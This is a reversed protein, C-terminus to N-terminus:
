GGGGSMGDLQDTRMAEGPHRSRQEGSISSHEFRSQNHVRERTARRQAIHSREGTAGGLRTAIGGQGNMRHDRRLPNDTESRCESPSVAGSIHVDQTPSIPREGGPSDHTPPRLVPAPTSPCAPHCGSEFWFVPRPTDRELDRGSLGSRLPECGREPIARSGQSLYPPRLSWTPKALAEDTAVHTATTVSRRSTSALTLGLRHPFIGYGRPGYESALVMQHGRSARRRTHHGARKHRNALAPREGRGNGGRGQTTAPRAMPGEEVSLPM